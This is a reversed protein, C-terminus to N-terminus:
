ELLEQTGCRIWVGIGSMPGSSGLWRQGLSNGRDQFGMSGEQNALYAETLQTSPGMVRVGGVLLQILPLSNRGFLTGM